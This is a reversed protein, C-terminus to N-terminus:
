LISFLKSFFISWHFHFMHNSCLERSERYCRDQWRYLWTCRCFLTKKTPTGRKSARTRPLGGWVFCSIKDCLVLKQHLWLAFKTIKARVPKM